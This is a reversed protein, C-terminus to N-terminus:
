TRSGVSASWCRSSITRRRAALSASMSMMPMSTLQVASNASAPQISSHAPAFRSAAVAPTM